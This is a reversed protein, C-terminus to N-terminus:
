DGIVAWPLATIDFATVAGDGFLSALRMQQASRIIEFDVIEFDSPLGVIWHGPESM